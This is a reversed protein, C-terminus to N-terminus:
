HELENLYGEITENLYAYRDLLVFDLNPNISGIMRGKYYLDSDLVAMKRHFAQPLQRFPNKYGTMLSKIDPYSNRLALGFARSRLITDAPVRSNVGDFRVNRGTLGQKYHRTGTRTCWVAGFDPTNVYGLEPINLNLKSKPISFRKGTILSVAGVGESGRIEDVFVPTNRYLVISSQLRTGLENGTEFYTAPFM